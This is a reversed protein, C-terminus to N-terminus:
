AATWYWTKLNESYRVAGCRMKASLRLCGLESGYAYLDGYTGGDTIDKDDYNLFEVTIPSGAIASYESAARSLQYTTAKM